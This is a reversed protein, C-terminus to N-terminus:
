TVIIENACVNILANLASQIDNATVNMSLCITQQKMFNHTFEVRFSTNSSSLLSSNASSLTLQQIEYGNRIVVGTTGGVFIKMGPTVTSGMESITSIIPSGPEVLGKGSLTSGDLADFSSSNSGAGGGIRFFQGESIYM